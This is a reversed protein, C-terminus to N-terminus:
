KVIKEIKAMVEPSLIMELFKEKNELFHAQFNVNSKIVRQAVDTKMYDVVFSIEQNTLKADEIIFDVIMDLIKDVKVGEKLINQVQLMQKGNLAESLQDCIQSVLAQSLTEAQLQYKEKMAEKPEQPIPHPSKRM